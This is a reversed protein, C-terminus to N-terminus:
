KRWPPLDLPKAMGEVKFTVSAKMASPDNDLNALQGNLDRLREKHVWKGGPPTDWPLHWGDKCRVEVRVEVEDDLRRQVAGAAVDTSRDKYHSKVNADIIRDPGVYLQVTNDFNNWWDNWDIAAVKVTLNQVGADKQLYDQYAKVEAAMTQRPGEKLYKEAWEDTRDKLFAEYLRRDQADKLDSILVAIKDLSERPLLEVVCHDSQIADLAKIGQDEGADSEYRREMAELKDLCRRRFDERCDELDAPGSMAEAAERVRDASMLKDYQRRVPELEERHAAKDAKAAVEVQLALFERKLEETAAGPPPRDKLAKLM